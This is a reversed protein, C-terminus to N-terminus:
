VTFPLSTNRRALQDGDDFSFNAVAHAAPIVCFIAGMV